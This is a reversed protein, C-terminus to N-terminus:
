RDALRWSPIWYHSLVFRYSKTGPFAFITVLKFLVTSILLTACIVPVCRTFPGANANLPAQRADDCGQMM